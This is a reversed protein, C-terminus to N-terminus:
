NFNVHIGFNISRQLPYSGIGDNSEPDIVKVDDWTILNMGNVFLRLQEIGIRHSIQTPFTYGVEANRLRIYSANRQYATSFRYNNPNIDDTAAPYKANDMNDPTWRHDYFERLINYSGQGKMFPMISPGNLYLSTRGAGNFFLSMDVGKYAITGGFGYMIEPTRPYGIAVADFNDIVGDENIDKYRIDGPRVLDQFMQKPSNAIEDDNEFFGLAVLGFPQDIPRGKASQYAWRQIPEDNEEVKSRAFTFNGMFSYYVGGNNVRKLELMGEIGRNTAIGINGYPISGPNFGAMNPITRRQILIGERREHFADVQVTIMNSLFSVDFGVNSKTSVEWTVNNTGIQMEDIGPWFTQQDGFLYGQATRANMSTLYLFRRGGIQDNGVQGYSGRIKMSNVFNINEMFPENSILWGGSISPFFGFRQGKPFNESGNYGMNFEAFYTNRYGYTARAAIGQRRFPLGDISTGATINIYDRQNYLIMGSLNHNGLSKEYNIIAESYIARNSNNWLWYNMPQEERLVTYQPEGTEEDQGTYYKVEFSKHRNIGGSYHHDYSFRGSVSLGPTIFTSMDWKASLTGQVNSHMHVSYGSQTALGWPNNGILTPTGGPSGDPNRASYAIPPTVRIADLLADSGTAPFDGQQIIGAIGLELVLDKSVNVDVNSRLNYRRMRVNTKYTNAPDNKWIGNQDTYGANAYYRVIESGGNVNLNNITQYTHKRMIEETWNVDPYLYPDSGNGFMGIQEDTWRPRQGVHELGENMLSAYEVANIYNPLRIPQLLASESRFAVKPRGMVGKKTTIVIVGNAGRVGYVATASADKLVSFTEIEQVNINDLSREVGDILVMPARNGWTGMGRIYIQAQDSGPEASSQRTMIGPLRGGLANSLSPTSTKALERVAVTSIAGTVSIKKQTGFGVVTVEDLKAQEEDIAMSFKRERDTGTLVELPYYGVYSILLTDTPATIELIFKGDVDTLVSRESGKIVVSANALPEDREDVVLGTLVHQASATISLLLIPLLLLWIRSLYAPIVYRKFKKTKM